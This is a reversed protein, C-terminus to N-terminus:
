TPFYSLQQGERGKIEETNKGQVNFSGKDWVNVVAGKDLRLQWGTDNPLRKQDAIVHGADTLLKVTDDINM